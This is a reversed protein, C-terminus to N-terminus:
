LKWGAASSPIRTRVPPSRPRPVTPEPSPALRIQGVSRPTEHFRSEGFDRLHPQAAARSARHLGQAAEVLRAVAHGVRHVRRRASKERPKARRLERFLRLPHKLPRPRREAIFAGPDREIHARPQRRQRRLIKTPLEGVRELRRFGRAIRQRPRQMAQARSIQHSQRLEVVQERPLEVRHNEIQRAAHPHLRHDIRHFREIRLRLARQRHIVRRIAAAAHQARRRHGRPHFAVARRQRHTERAGTGRRLTQRLEGRQPVGETQGLVRRQRSQDPSGILPVPVSASQATHKANGTEADFLLRRAHHVEHGTRESRRLRRCVGCIQDTPRERGITPLHYAEPSAAVM